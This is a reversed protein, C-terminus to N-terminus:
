EVSTQRAKQSAKGLTTRATQSAKGYAISLRRPKLWRATVKPLHTHVEAALNPKRTVAHQRKTKHKAAAKEEDSTFIDDVLDFLKPAIATILPLM